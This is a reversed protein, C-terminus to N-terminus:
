SLRKGPALEHLRLHKRRRGQVPADEGGSTDRLKRDGRTDRALDHGSGRLQAYCCNGEQDTGDAGVAHLLHRAARLGHPGGTVTLLARANDPDLAALDALVGVEAGINRNELNRVKKGV